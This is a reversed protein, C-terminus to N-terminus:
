HGLHYRFHAIPRPQAAVEEQTVNRCHESHRLGNDGEKDVTIIATGAVRRRMSQNNYTFKIDITDIPVNNPCAAHSKAM